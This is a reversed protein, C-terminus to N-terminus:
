FGQALVWMRWNVGDITDFFLRDKNGNTSTPTYAGNMATVTGPLTMTRATGDATLEWLFSTAKGATAGSIGTLTANANLTTTV